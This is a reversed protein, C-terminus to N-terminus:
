GIEGIYKSKWMVDPTDWTKVPYFKYFIINKYAEKTQPDMADIAKKRAEKARWKGEQVVTLLLKLKEKKNQPLDVNHAYEECDDM